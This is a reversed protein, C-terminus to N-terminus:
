KELEIYERILKWGNEENRWVFMCQATFPIGGIVNTEKGLVLVEEGEKRESVSATEFSKEADDMQKLVSNLDYDYFYPDPEKIGSHAWYGVFEKSMHARIGDGNKTTFGENWAHFYEELVNDITLM